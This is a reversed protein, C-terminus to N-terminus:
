SYKEKYAKQLERASLDTFGRAVSYAASSLSEKDGKSQMRRHLAACAKDMMMAKPDAKEMPTEKSYKKRLKTTGYEGANEDKKAMSGSKVAGSKKIKDVLKLNRMSTAGEPVPEKIGGENMDKIKMKAFYDAIDQADDFSKQGKQGKMSIFFSDAGRDFDGKGVVKGKFMVSIAGGDSVIKYQGNGGHALVQKAEDLEAEERIKVKFMKEVTQKGMTKALNTILWERPETDLDDVFKVFNTGANGSSLMKAAKMFDAKDIGGSKKAYAEISAAAKKMAPTAAEIINKYTKPMQENGEKRVKSALDKDAKGWTGSGKTIFSNVRAFAWQQQSSGPRHGTRWAAMGRDYVKKLIGYSIGSKDAKKKLAGIQSENIEYEENKPVCNPVMKDGKKKMGVQKHTDWCAEDTKDESRNKANTDKTRARDLMRDHKEKDSDKERKILERAREQSKNEGFMDRYKKTHKSTKTQVKDDGAHKDPYASPDSHHKKAAKKFQNDRKDKTSKALGSHYKAPQSGKKDGIDSDERAESIYEENASVRSKALREGEAKRVKNILKKAMRDIMPKKKAVLKDITSKESSSLGAYNKGRDGAVKGRIINIAKKRARKELTGKDARRKSKIKRMRAIKKANRKMTRGRAIRQQVSLAEELEEKLNKQVMQMMRKKDADSLKSAAASGFGFQKKGEEDTYDDFQGKSALGRLKTGSMGEVGKADPDREGASVVKIEEFDYERGNYKDLITKFEQVRDSGVVMVIKKYGASELEAAIQFIQKAKSNIIVSGFAKRAFRYKDKYSLPDKTNNQTHSLYVRAEAKEKKAVEKVKNVLKEHGITVPNMRGFTFVIKKM